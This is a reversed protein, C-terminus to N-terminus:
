LLRQTVVKPVYVDNHRICMGNNDDSSGVKNFNLVQQSTPKDEM